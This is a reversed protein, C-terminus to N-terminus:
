DIVYIKKGSFELEKGTANELYDKFWNGRNHIGDCGHLQSNKSYGAIIKKLDADTLSNVTDKLRRLREMTEIYHPSKVFLKILIEKIRSGQDTERILVSSVKYAIDDINELSANIAQTAGIFGKPDTSGVKVCVIPIGKGLAFGVEQDTWDGEHFDDALLVLMVEMTKLGNMIENQWEKMPKIADHAVFTAIGFPDLAEALNNAYSKYKDRHSLFLRLYNDKWLGVDEPNVSPESSFPVAKRFQSDEEDELKIHVSGIFEGKIEQTVKNLDEEIKESLPAQNDLDIMRITDEPLFILVDHYYIGGDLNDFYTCIDIYIRGSEIIQCLLTEEAGEYEILLRRLAAMIKPPLDYETM